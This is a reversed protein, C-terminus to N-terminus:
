PAAFRDRSRNMAVALEWSLDSARIALQKENIGDGESMKAAGIIGVSRLFIKPLDSVNREYRIVCEGADQFQACLEIWDALLKARDKNILDDKM